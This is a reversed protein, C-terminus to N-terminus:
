ATRRDGIWVSRSIWWLPLAVLSAAWVLWGWWVPAAVLWFVFPLVLWGTWTWGLWLLLRKQRYAAYCTALWMVFVLIWMWVGLRLLAQVGPDFLDVVPDKVLLLASLIM